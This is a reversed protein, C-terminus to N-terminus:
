AFVNANSVGGTHLAIIRSGYAFQGKAILDFLGYLMKGTYVFDLLVQQEIYFDKIFRILEPTTKAYGGFPYAHIRFSSSSIGFKEIIEAGLADHKLVAIGIAQQHAQLASAIGALTTGTGCASVIFDFDIDIERVIEKCGEFGEPNAGGEPIVYVNTLDLGPLHKKDRFDERSAYFLQMGQDSAFQLSKNLSKYEEGRIVGITNFGLLKGAAATARIHNSYAGGFTLLTNKNEKRAREANYKLKRWKNGPVDPHILDERKLYLHIGYTKTLDNEIAQLPSPLCFLDTM